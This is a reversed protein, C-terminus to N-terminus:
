SDMKRTLFFEGEDDFFEDDDNLFDYEDEFLEDEDDFLEGEFEESFKHTTTFLIQLEFIQWFLFYHLFIWPIFVCIQSWITRSLFM